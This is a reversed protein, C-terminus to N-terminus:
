RKDRPGPDVPSMGAAPPPSTVDLVRSWRGDQTWAGSRTGGDQAVEVVRWRFPRDFRVAVPFRLSRAYLDPEAASFSTLLRVPRGGVGEAEVEVQKEYLDPRLANNFDYCYVALAAYGPPLSDNIDVQRVLGPWRALDVVVSTAGARVLSVHTPGGGQHAAEAEEVQARLAAVLQPSGTLEPEEAPAAGLAFYAYGLSLMLRGQRLGEALLQAEVPSLSIVYSRESWVNGAAPAAAAPAATSEGADPAAAAEEFHGDPLAQVSEPTPAPAWVVAAELRQVPLPRLETGRPLAARTKQVEAPGVGTQVVRLSLLSRFVVAGQDGAAATGTYRAALLQLDPKGAGDSAIALEGPAYYRLTPRRDDPYVLLSGIPRGQDLRPAAVAPAALLLAALAAPAPRM